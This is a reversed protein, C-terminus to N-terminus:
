LSMSSFMSEFDDEPLAYQFMDVMNRLLMKYAQLDIYGAGRLSYVLTEIFMNAAYCIKRFRRDTIEPCIENFNPFVEFMQMIFHYHENSYVFGPNTSVFENNNLKVLTTRLFEWDCMLQVKAFSM